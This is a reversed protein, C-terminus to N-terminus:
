EAYFVHVTANYGPLKYDIESMMDYRHDEITLFSRKDILYYPTPTAVVPLSGFYRRLGFFSFGWAGVV